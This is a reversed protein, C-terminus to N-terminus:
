HTWSTWMKCRVYLLSGVDCWLLVVDDFPFMKRTVPRKPPSNVPSRHIGQVFPWYRPVKFSEKIQAQIFPQPFLQSAPSYVDRENHRWQLPFAPDTYINPTAHYSSMFPTNLRRLMKSLSLPCKTLNQRSIAIELNVYINAYVLFQPKWHLYWNCADVWLIM